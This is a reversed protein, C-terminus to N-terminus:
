AKVNYGLEIQEVKEYANQTNKNSLFFSNIILGQASIAQKLESTRALIMDKFDAKATQISIDLYKNESLGLVVSIDGFKIFNLEIRAYFRDKKGRKFAVQSSALEDWTYPLYTQISNQAYSMLQHIEIQTLMRNVAQNINQLNQTQSSERLNLLVSKLDNQLNKLAENPENAKIKSLEKQAIKSARELSKIESLENKISALKPDISTILSNIRNAIASIKSQINTGNINQSIAQNLLDQPMAKFDKNLMNQALNQAPNQSQNTQNQANNQNNLAIKYNKDGNKLMDLASKLENANQNIAQRIQKAPKLNQAELNLNNISKMIEDLNKELTNFANISSASPKPNQSLKDLFKVLNEFKNAGELLLNLASHKILANKANKSASLLENLDNLNKSASADNPLNLIGMKLENSSVNKMLSILEKIKAPFSQPELSQAIKAELMIGSNQIHNTLSQAKINDIPKIFKQLAQTFKSLEEHNKLEKLLEKIDSALNPAVQLAKGNLSQEGSKLSNLLKNTLNALKKDILASQEDLIDAKSFLSKPSQETTTKESKSTKKDKLEKDIIPQNPQNVIIM